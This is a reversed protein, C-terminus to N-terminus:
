KKSARLIAEKVVAFVEKADAQEIELSDHSQYYFKGFRENEVKRGTKKGTVEDVEDVTENTDRLKVKVQVLITKEDSQAKLKM